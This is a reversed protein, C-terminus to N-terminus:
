VFLNKLRKRVNDAFFVRGSMANKLAQKVTKVTNEAAGNLAPNFPPSPMHKNDHKTLYQKFDKSTFTPADDSVLINPLGFRAFPERLVTITSKDNLSNTPFVELRKSHADICNLFYKNFFSGMYDIYIYGRRITEFALEMVTPLWQHTVKIKFVPLVPNSLIKLIRVLQPWWISIM